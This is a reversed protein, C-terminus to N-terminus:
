PKLEANCASVDGAVGFGVCPPHLRDPAARAVQLSGLAGGGGPRAEVIVPVGLEQSLYDALVRGIRDTVGGAGFPQVLTITRRPWDAASTPGAAVTAMLLCALSLLCSFRQTM